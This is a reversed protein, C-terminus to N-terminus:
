GSVCVCSITPLFFYLFSCAAVAGAAFLSVVCIGSLSPAVIELSIFRRYHPLIYCCVDIKNLKALTSPIKKEEKEKSASGIPLLVPQFLVKAM